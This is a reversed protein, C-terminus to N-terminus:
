REEKNYFFSSIYQWLNSKCKEKYIKCFQLSQYKIYRKKKKESWDGAYLRWRFAGICGTNKMSGSSLSIGTPM